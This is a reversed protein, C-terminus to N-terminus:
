RIRGKCCRQFGFTGICSPCTNQSIFHSFHLYVEVKAELENLNQYSNRFLFEENFNSILPCATPAAVGAAKRKKYRHLPVVI